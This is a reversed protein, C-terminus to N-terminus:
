HCHNDVLLPTTGFLWRSLTAPAVSGLRSLAHVNIPPPSPPLILKDSLPKAPSLISIALCDLKSIPRGSQTDLLIQNQSVIHLPQVKFRDREGTLLKRRGLRRGHGNLSPCSAQACNFHGELPPSAVCALALSCSNRLKNAHFM